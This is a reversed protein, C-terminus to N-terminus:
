SWFFSLIIDFINSTIVNGSSSFKIGEKTVSIKCTDGLVGLDRIIRQFEAAPLRVQLSIILFICTLLFIVVLLIFSSVHHTCQM